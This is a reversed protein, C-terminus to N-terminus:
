FFEGKLLSALLYHLSRVLPEPPSKHLSHWVFYIDTVDNKIPISFSLAYENVVGRRVYFLEGPIGLVCACAAAVQLLRGTEVHWWINIFVNVSM